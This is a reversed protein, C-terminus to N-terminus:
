HRKDNGCKRPKPEEIIMEGKMMIEYLAIEITKTTALDKMAITVWQWTYGPVHVMLTVSDVAISDPVTLTFNGAEDCEATINTGKLTVNGFQVPTGSISDMVVASITRNEKAEPVKICVPGTPHKGDIVVTPHYDNAPGTTSQASVAATAGAVMLAAFLTNLHYNKGSLRTHVIARNLQSGRLQGCMSGTHQELFALIENDTMASFDTVNKRCSGCFKGSETPTMKDWDEHCPKEIRISVPQRKM